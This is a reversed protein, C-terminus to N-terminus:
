PKSLLVSIYRVSALIHDIAFTLRIKLMRHNYSTLFENFFSYLVDSVVGEGEGSEINGRPDKVTIKSNYRLIDKQLSLNLVESKLNMRHVIVEKSVLVEEDFSQDLIFLLIGTSHM